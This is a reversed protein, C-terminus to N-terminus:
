LFWFLKIGGLEKEKKNIINKINDSSYPLIIDLNHYEEKGSRIFKLKYSNGKFINNTNNSNIKDVVPDVLILETLKINKNTNKISIIKEIIQSLEYFYSEDNMSINKLLKYHENIDGELFSENPILCQLIVLIEEKNIDCNNRLTNILSNNNFISYKLEDFLQNKKISYEFLKKKLYNMSDNHTRLQENFNNESIAINRNTDNIDKNINIIQCLFNNENSFKDIKNNIIETISNNMKNNIKDNIKDNM